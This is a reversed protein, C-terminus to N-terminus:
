QGKPAPSVVPPGLAQVPPTPLGTATALAAADAQRSQDLEAAVEAEYTTPDADAPVIGIRQLHQVIDVAKLGGLQRADVLSQIEAAANIPLVPPASVMVGPAEPDWARGDELALAYGSVRALTAFWRGRVSEIKTVYQQARFNLSSGSAAASSDSFLFEPLTQRAQERAYKAAELLTTVGQMAAEVYEVRGDSAVGNLIRGLAFLAGGGSEIQSGFIALLPNAHRNGIASIQTLLSDVMSLPADLGQAAWLGHSPDTYPTMQLQALPVVGLGHEGSAAEDLKGDVYVDVRDPTLVRTYTHAAGDDNQVEGHASIQAADFYPASIVARVLRLGTDRDYDLAKIWRPDYAVLVPRYPKSSSTRVAELSFDGMSAGWRVWAERREAVQSRKWLRAAAEAFRMATASEISPQLTWSTGCIGATDMDVVHQVDRTLRRTESIINGSPDLARFLRQDVIEGLSYPEGLYAMERRTYYSAWEDETTPMSSQVQAEADHTRSSRGGFSRLGQAWSLVSM